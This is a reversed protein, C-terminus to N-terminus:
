KAPLFNISFGAYWWSAGFCHLFLMMLIAIGKLALSEEKTFGKREMNEM